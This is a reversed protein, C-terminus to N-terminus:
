NFMEEIANEGVLWDDNKSTTLTESAYFGSLLDQIEEDVNVVGNSIGILKIIIQLLLQNMRSIESIFYAPYTRTNPLEEKLSGLIENVPINNLIENAGNDDLSAVLLDMEILAINMAKILRFFDKISGKKSEIFDKGSLLYVSEIQRSLFYGSGDIHVTPSIM